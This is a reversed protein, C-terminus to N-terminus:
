LALCWLSVGMVIMAVLALGRATLDRKRLIRADVIAPVMYPLQTVGGLLLLLEFAAAPELGLARVFTFAYFAQIGLHLLVGLCLGERLSGRPAKLEPSSPSM